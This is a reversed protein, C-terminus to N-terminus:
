YHLAMQVVYRQHKNAISHLGLPIGFLRQLQSCHSLRKEPKDLVYVVPVSGYPTGKKKRNQKTYFPQATQNLQAKIEPPVEYMSPCALVDPGEPSMSICGTEQSPAHYIHYQESENDDLCQGSVQELYYGESWLSILSFAGKPEPLLQQFIAQGCVSSAKVIVGIKGQVYCLVGKCGQPLDHPNKQVIFHHSSPYKHHLDSLTLREMVRATEIAGTSLNVFVLTDFGAVRRSGM